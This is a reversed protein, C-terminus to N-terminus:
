QTSITRPSPRFYLPSLSNRYYPESFRWIYAEVLYHFVFLGDFLAIVVVYAPPESLDMTTM